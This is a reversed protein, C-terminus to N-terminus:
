FRTSAPDKTVTIINEEELQKQSPLSIDIEGIQSKNRSYRELNMALSNGLENDPVKQVPLYRISFNESSTQSQNELNYEYLIYKTEGPAIVKETRQPSCDTCVVYDIVAGESVNDDLTVSMNVLVNNGTVEQEHIFYDKKEVTFSYYSIDASTNRNKKNEEDLGEPAFSFELETRNGKVHQSYQDPYSFISALSSSKDKLGQEVPLYTIKITQNLKEEQFNQELKLSAEEGPDLLKYGFLATPGGAATGRQARYRVILPNESAQSLTVTADLKIGEGYAVSESAPILEIGRIDLDPKNEQSITSKDDMFVYFAAGILIM